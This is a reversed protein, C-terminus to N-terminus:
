EIEIRYATYNEMWGFKRKLHRAFARFNPSVMSLAFKYGKRRLDERMEDHLRRIAELRVVPHGNGMLLVIEPVRVAFGAAIIEGADSEVILASETLVSHRNPLDFKYGRQDYIARLTPEDGSMM